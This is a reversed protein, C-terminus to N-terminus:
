LPAGTNGVGTSVGSHVHTSLNIGNATAVGATQNFNGVVTLNGTVSVNGVLAILPATVSASTTAVANIHGGATADINGSAVAAINGAPDVEVFTTGADNRLQAKTTSISPIVQPVSSVGVLAFGDSLDHMRLDAQINNFGGSQWWTDICRDSFVVLCEDNPKVPFTLTVGGGSPFFVPCDLLQPMQVWSFTGDPSQVQAKLAPQIVATRKQADFSQIIGPMATRLSAQLGAILAQMAPLTDGSRERRDM